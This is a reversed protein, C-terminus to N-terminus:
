FYMLLRFAIKVFTLVKSALVM